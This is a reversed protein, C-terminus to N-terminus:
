KEEGDITSTYIVSPNVERIASIFADYDKPSIVIVSYKADSYYAVLKDTKKFHTIQIVNKIETKTKIFGFYSYLCGNKVVYKGYVTVSLAFVFLALNILAILSSSIIKGVGLKSLAILSYISYGAGALTILLIVALLVWILTSYRFRFSKM